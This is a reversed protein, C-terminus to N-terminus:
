RWYFLMLINLGLYFMSCKEQYKKKKHNSKNHTIVTILNKVDYQNKSNHSTLIFIFIYTEWFLFCYFHKFNLHLASVNLLFIHEKITCYLVCPNYAAVKVHNSVLLYLGIYGSRRVALRLKKTADNFSPYRREPWHLSTKEWAKQILFLQVTSVTAGRQYSELDTSIEASAQPGGQLVGDPHPHM